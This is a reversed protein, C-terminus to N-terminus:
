TRSDASESKSTKGYNAQFIKKAEEYGDPTHPLRLIDDGPKGRVLEMLYNFKSIEAMGSGDVEVTFQSWFRLWDKFDGQFPTITYKQLKVTPQKQAEEMNHSEAIEREM